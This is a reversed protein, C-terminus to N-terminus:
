PFWGYAGFLRPETFGCLKLAGDDGLVFRPKILLPDGGALFYRVRNVNRQINDAYIGLVAVSSPDNPNHMFRLLAQDTGYGGVGFNGVRCRLREALTNGWAYEERVGVGYTFSDGYLTVCENGPEPYAPSFRAGTSDLHDHVRSPPWGWGLIPDRITLIRAYRAETVQPPFYLISAIGRQGVIRPLSYSALEAFGLLFAIILLWGVIRASRRISAQAIRPPRM